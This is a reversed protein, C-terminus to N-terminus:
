LMLCNIHLLKLEYSIYKMIEHLLIHLFSHAHQSIIFYLKNFLKLPLSKEEKM